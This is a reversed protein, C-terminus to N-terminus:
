VGAPSWQVLISGPTRPACPHHGLGLLGTLGPTGGGISGETEERGSDKAALGWGRPLAWRTRQAPRARSHTQLVGSSGFSGARLRSQDPTLISVQVWSGEPVLVRLKEGGLRGKKPLVRIMASGPSCSGSSTSASMKRWRDRLSRAAAALTQLAQAAAAVQLMTHCSVVM